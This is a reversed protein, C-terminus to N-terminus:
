SDESSRDERIQEIMEAVQEDTPPPPKPPVFPFTTPPSNKSIQTSSSQGDIRLKFTGVFSLILSGVSGIVCLYLGGGVSALSTEATLSGINIMDVLSILFSLASCILAIVYGSRKPGFNPHVYIGAVLIVIGLILVVTGDSTDIGNISLLGGFVTAWPLLCGIAILGGCISLGISVQKTRLIEQDSTTNTSGSSLGSTSQGDDKTNQSVSPPPPQFGAPRM